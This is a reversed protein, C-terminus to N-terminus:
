FFISEYLAWSASSVLLRVTKADSFVCSTLRCPDSPESDRAIPPAKWPLVTVAESVVLTEPTEDLEAMAPDYLM